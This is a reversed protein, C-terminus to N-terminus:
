LNKKIFYYVLLELGETAAGLVLYWTAAEQIGGSYSYRVIVTNDDSIIVESTHVGNKIYISQEAEERSSVPEAYILKTRGRVVSHPKMVILQENGDPLEILYANLNTGTNSGLISTGVWAPAIKGLAAEDISAPYKYVFLLEFVVILFVNLLFLLALPLPIKSRWYKERHM